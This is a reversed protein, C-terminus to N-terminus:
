PAVEQLLSLDYLGSLDPQRAGLLGLQYARRAQEEVSATMPDTRFDIRSLSAAILRADMPKGQLAALAAQLRTRAEDPNTQIWQTIALHAALFRKAQERHEKLYTPHAVLLTTAFTRDPWLDREDYVLQAGAELILRSGWPEAVWAGDLQGRAFLSLIEAPAMPALTVDGGRERTPWGRQDLLYRMAVDQTNALGPTALRRGRLDGPDVGERVVFVAGGSAAGAIVRVAEGESRMYGNVAPSPGVYLLDIEGAYLAQIASPGSPFLRTTVKAGVAREFSGEAVGLVAQAHTLNAMYGLRIGTRESASRPPLVGSVSCGAALLATVLLWIWRRM